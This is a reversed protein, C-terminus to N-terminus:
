LKREGHRAAKNMCEVLGDNVGEYGAGSLNPVFQELDVLVFFVHGGVVNFSQSRLEVRRVKRWMAWRDSM